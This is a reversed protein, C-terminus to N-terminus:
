SRWGKGTLESSNHLRADVYDVHNLVICTPANVVIADKVIQADFRGVRRVKKTVSTYEIIPTDWGGEQTITGWDTANPLPGSDGAVRIPFARIVLVVDLVDLPSLGTEAVFAAATTDRSTAKPYHPSHLLSLGFGQTGEVVVHENRRLMERLLRRVPRVFASLRPDNQALHYPSLRRIREIVAAGTGSQTSGIRQGLSWQREAERHREALVYANPDIWIREPDVDATQM